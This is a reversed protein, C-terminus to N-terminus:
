PAEEEDAGIERGFQDIMHERLREREKEETSTLNRIPGVRTLTFTGRRTGDRDYSGRLVKGAGDVEGTAFRTAGEADAAAGGGLVDTRLFVPKLDAGEISWHEEYTVYAMSRQQSSTSEWRSGDALRLTKSKSGRSNVKPGEALEAQQSPNPTWYVLRRSARNTGLRDFRNSEDSFVVIPYDLWRLRDGEREFVWVRDEWREADPNFAASDKYHVVVHWTGQLDVAAAPRAALALLSLLAPLLARKM